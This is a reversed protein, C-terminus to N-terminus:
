CVDRGFSALEGGSQDGVSDPKRPERLLWSLLLAM